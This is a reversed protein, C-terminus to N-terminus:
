FVYRIVIFGGVLLLTFAITLRNFNKDIFIRAAPGYRGVLWAIIFFRLGRSICSAIVFVLFQLNFVGAGITIIKYPIPTFGATFVFWFDYQQFLHQIQNFLDPTFGPVWNFFFPATTEWFGYGIGYGLVGGLVSGVTCIFAYRMAGKASSLCLALLLVDPPIPFFSSEAVALVFLALVAYRSDAWSLVWDYLRRVLITM